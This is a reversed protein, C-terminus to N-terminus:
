GASTKITGFDYILLLPSSVYAGQIELRPSTCL